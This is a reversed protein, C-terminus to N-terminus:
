PKAKRLLSKIREFVKRSDDIPINGDFQGAFYNTACILDFMQDPNKLECIRDIPTKKERM